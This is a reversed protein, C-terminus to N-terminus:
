NRAMDIPKERGLRHERWAVLIGAGVILPAGLWTAAPPLHEWILWGYGTAWVLSTYDMIMVSAIPGHRLSGTVFLQGCMGTVGIALLLLWQAPDHASGYFPLLPAVMAAGFLSFYFVIRLPEETRSMNRIFFSILATMLASGLGALAGPVSLPAHGPQAIVIVGAFGLAVATWRWPGVHERFVLAALIVAFLPTTFGLTTSEALPLLLVASFNLVMGTMGIAARSAHMGIRQTKLRRLQGIALLYGIVLPVTLFQRWFIIEPLPIRAEGAQKILMAMTAFSLASGLRLVLAYIPRQQM